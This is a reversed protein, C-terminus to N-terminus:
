PSSCELYPGYMHVVSWSPSPMLLAKSSAFPHLTAPSMINQSYHLQLCFCRSLCLVCFSFCTSCKIAVMLSCLTVAATNQFFHTLISLCKSSATPSLYRQPRHSSLTDKLLVFQSGNMLQVHLSSM